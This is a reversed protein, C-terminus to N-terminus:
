THYTSVYYLSSYESSFLMSWVECYVLLAALVISGAKVHNTRLSFHHSNDSLIINQYNYLTM